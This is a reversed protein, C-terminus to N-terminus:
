EFGLSTNGLKKKYRRLKQHIARAAADPDTDGAVTIYINTNGGGGGHTGGPSVYEPIGNEAFSYRSGSHAGYGFVPERIWGGHLYGHGSGMGMGGRMLTPGYQHRAYNIAAAINALPNYIDWSTGPWHYARFTTMITQLLGRSPDGAAANSDTLNIANPNGGSETQMQYLVRGAFGSSLHEMALAKLVDGRWQAVGAGYHGSYKGMSVIGQGAKSASSTLSKLLSMTLSKMIDDTAPSIGPIGGLMGTVSGFFKSMIFSAPKSLFGLLDKGLGSFFGGISKLPNPIGGAAYGPVGVASFIPALVSSHAASVVTEGKSVRALVDDSRPGSGVMVRGGEAFHPAPLKLSSLHVIGTIKNWIGALRDWVNNVVWAVPTRFAGEIGHIANSVGRVASDTMNKVDRWMVDWTNAVSHRLTDFSNAINHRWNDVDSEIDHIGKRLSTVTDDWTIDWYLSVDHRIQSFTNSIIHRLNQMMHADDDYFSSFRHSIWSWTEDWSQAATHRISDFVIAIGHDMQEFLHQVARTGANTKGTLGGWMSEWADTVFIKVEKFANNIHHIAPIFHNEIYAAVAALGSIADFAAGVIHVLFWIFDAFAKPNKKIVDAMRTIANAITNMMGPIMPTLAKLIAAFAQAVANISRTVAPSGFARMFTTGFKDFPGAITSIARGLAGFLKPIVSTAAMEIDSLVKAFPRAIDKLAGLATNKLDAFNRSVSKDAYAGLIGVGAMAGGLAAIISSAAAQAILPLAAIATGIAFPNSLAAAAGGGPGGALLSAFIGGGSAEGGGGGGTDAIGKAAAGIGLAGFLKGIGKPKLEDEKIRLRISKDNIGDLTGKIKLLKAEDADLDGIKLNKKKDLDLGIKRISDSISLLKAKAADDKVDLAIENRETDLIRLKLKLDKLAAQANDDNATIKLDAPVANLDHAKKALDDLTLKAKDGGSSLINMRVYREVAM